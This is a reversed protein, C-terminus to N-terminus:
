GGLAAGLAVRGVGEGVPISAPVGPALLEAVGQRDRGIRLPIRRRAILVHDQGARSLLRRGTRGSVPVPFGGAMSAVTSSNLDDM